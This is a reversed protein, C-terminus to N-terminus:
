MIGVKLRIGPVNEGKWELMDFVAESIGLFHVKVTNDAKTEEWIQKEYDTWNEKNKEALTEWTKLLAPEMKHREESYYVYGTKESEPCKNLIEKIEPTIGNFNTNSLTDTMQDLQFDSALLVKRYSDFDYGQVLMVICNVVVMSLAISLMVILGKELKTVCKSSGNGM